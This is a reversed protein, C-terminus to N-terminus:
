ATMRHAVRSTGHFAAAELGAARVRNAIEELREAPVPQLYPWATPRDTSYVHVSRPRIDHLAGLWASVALDTSNDLRGTRDKVFLAQVVIDPVSALASVIEELTLRAANLSRLLGPDGADLKMYREDLRALAQRVAPRGATSANSLVTLPVGPAVDDRMARLAEVVAPFEPHLTPEGHGALTLRDVPEHREALTELCRAAAKAVLAPSPWPGRPLTGNAAITTTWGYQCYSCNFTCVKQGRPLINLGLSRGLRRSRVPGYVIAEQLPLM